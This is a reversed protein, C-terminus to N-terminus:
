KLRGENDDTPGSKVNHRSSWVVADCRICRLQIPPIDKEYGMWRVFKDPDSDYYCMAWGCCETKPEEWFKGWRGRPVPLPVVLRPQILGSDAAEALKPTEPM